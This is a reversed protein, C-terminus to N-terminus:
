IKPSGEPCSGLRMRASGFAPGLRTIITIIINIRIMIIIIIIIINIRIMIIIIIVVVRSTLFVYQGQKLNLEQETEGMRDHVVLGKTMMTMLRTLLLWTTMMMM